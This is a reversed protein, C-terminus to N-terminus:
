IIGPYCLILVKWFDNDSKIEFVHNLAPLQRTWGHSRLSLLIHYLEENDTIICGGEMTSIHHSFYSSFSGMVGFSGCHKSLYKAGMAECNDELLILNHKACLLINAFDNPNGLLNVCFIAKTKPSIAQELDDLNFNLTKLDIDVFKIRLGHQTIPFYTTAWSVAPVIVEDGKSLKLSNDKTYMLAAIMLLNASSGSNVMVCYKCDFTDAFESEYRKVKEGMTFNGSDIVQRMAILEADNWTSTALPFKLM